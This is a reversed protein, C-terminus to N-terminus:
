RRRRFWDGRNGRYWGQIVPLHNEIRRRQYNSYIAGNVLGTIEFKEVAELIAVELDILEKEKIGVTEYTIIPLEMAEAQLKTYEINPVHYMYSEPNKSLITILCVVDHGAQLAKDISFVSDKGGSFLAGLKM